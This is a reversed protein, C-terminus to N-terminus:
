PLSALHAKWFAGEGTTPTGNWDKVLVNAGDQWPNWTWALYSVGHSDAWPLFTPLYTQTGASSDGTEGVLVPVQATIPAITSNWCAQPSCGQQPYSHWGAIIQNSPDTPRHSLWGSLDNSWDLGNVIIPQPAGAGRITDVIRQMGTTQWNATITYPNGGTVYQTQTGGNLWRSWQDGGGTGWYDYPENFADFLVAPDARYAGAVGSWFSLSHDMDTMPNQSLARQTGPATWHLDLIVYLGAAHAAAVEAKIANQYVAGGVQVGNINLWCDENLPVRVVNQHWAAVADFTSKAGLPQGGYPDDTWNQACTFETGSVNAGHLV